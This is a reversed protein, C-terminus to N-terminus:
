VPNRWVECEPCHRPKGVLPSVPSRNGASLTGDLNHWRRCKPCQHWVQGWMVSSAAILLALLLFLVALLVFSM